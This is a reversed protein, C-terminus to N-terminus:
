IEKERELLRYKPAEMDKFHGKIFAWILLFVFGIGVIFYAIIPFLFQSFDKETLAEKIFQM